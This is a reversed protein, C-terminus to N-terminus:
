LGAGLALGDRQHPWEECFDSSSVAFRFAVFRLWLAAWATGVGGGGRCYCCPMGFIGEWLQLAVSNSSLRYAGGVGLGWACGGALM